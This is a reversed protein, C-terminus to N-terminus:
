LRWEGSGSTVGEGTGLGSINLKAPAANSSSKVIRSLGRPNLVLMGIMEDLVWGKMFQEVQHNEEVDLSYM